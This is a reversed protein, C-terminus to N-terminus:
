RLKINDGQSVSIYLAWEPYPSLWHSFANCLLAEKWGYGCYDKFVDMIKIVVPNHLPSHLFGWM